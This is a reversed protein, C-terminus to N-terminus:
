CTRINDRPHNWKHPLIAREHQKRSYDEEPNWAPISQMREESESYEVMTMADEAMNDTRKMFHIKQEIGM